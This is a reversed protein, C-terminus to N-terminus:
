ILIEDFLSELEYRKLLSRIHKSVANSIVGLRYHKHLSKILEIIDTDLKAFEDFESKIEKVSFNSESSLREFFETSDINGMCVLHTIERLEDKNKFNHKKLWTQFSDTYIVDFFDFIIAKYM